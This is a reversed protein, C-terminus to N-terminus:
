WRPVGKKVSGRGTSYFTKKFIAPNKSFVDLVKVEASMIYLSTTKEEHYKRSEVGGSELGFPNRSHAFFHAITRVNESM